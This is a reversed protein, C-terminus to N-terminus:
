TPYAGKLIAEALSKKEYAIEVRRHGANLSIVIPCMEVVREYIRKCRLESEEKM